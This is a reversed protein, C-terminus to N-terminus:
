MRHLYEMVLCGVAIVGGMLCALVLTRQRRLPKAKAEDMLSSSRLQRSLGAYQFLLIVLNIALFALLLLDLQSM